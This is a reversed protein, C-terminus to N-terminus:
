ACPAVAAQARQWQQPHLLHLRSGGGHGPEGGAGGRAPAQTAGPVVQEWTWYVVLMDPFCVASVSAIYLMLTTKGIGPHGAFIAQKAGSIRVGIAALEFVRRLEDSLMHNGDKAYLAPIIHFVSLTHLVGYCVDLFDREAAVSADTTPPTPPAPQATGDGPGGAAASPPVRVTGGDTLAMSSLMDDLLADAADATTTHADRYTTAAALAASRYNRLKVWAKKSLGLRRQVDDPVTEEHLRKGLLAVNAFDTSDVQM